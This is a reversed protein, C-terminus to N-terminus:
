LYWKYLLAGVGILLLINAPWNFKSYIKRREAFPKNKPNTLFYLGIVKLVISILFLVYAFYILM